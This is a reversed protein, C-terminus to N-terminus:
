ARKEIELTMPPTVYFIKGKYAIYGKNENIVEIRKGSLKHYDKNSRKYGYAAKWGTYLGQKKRTKLSSKVKKSIDLAYMENIGNKLWVLETTENNFNDYNDNIAIFRVNYKVFYEDLLISM